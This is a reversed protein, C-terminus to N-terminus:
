TCNDTSGFCSTNVSYDHAFEWEGNLTMWDSRIFQPRPYESRPIMKENSMIFRPKEVTIDALDSRYIFERNNSYIYKGGERPTFTLDAGQAVVTFFAFCCLFAFLGIFKKM